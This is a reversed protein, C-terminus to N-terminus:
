FKGNEHAMNEPIESIVDWHEAIKGDQVRFLDYFATPTGGFSGETMTFVFDGEAIVQHVTHYEMTIGQAALASLATGLGSLGNGIQSNHQIYTDGDFYGALGSMDGNVLVSTVFETVLDKNEATLSQDNIKTAGDTQTNGSINAPVVASINDWHEAVKGNEIRFVDFAVLEDGGLAAANTYTNHMVVLNDQSLTRHTTVSIGSEKLAPIFDIIPARGTPVAPNHQIYNEALLSQAADSDFTTFVANIADSAIDSPSQAMAPQALISQALTAVLTAAALTYINM